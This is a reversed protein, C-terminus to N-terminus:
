VSTVAISSKWRSLLSGQPFSICHKVVLWCLEFWGVQVFRLKLVVKHPPARASQCQKKKRLRHRRTHHHKGMEGCVSRTQRSPCWYLRFFFLAALRRSQLLSVSAQRYKYWLLLRCVGRNCQRCRVDIVNTYCIHDDDPGAVVAGSHRLQEVFCPPVVGHGM